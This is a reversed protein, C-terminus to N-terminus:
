SCIASSCAGIRARRQAASGRDAAAQAARGRQRDGPRAEDHHVPLFRRGHHAPRREARRESEVDARAEPPQQAARRGLAHERGDPDPRGARGHRVRLQLDSPITARPEGQADQRRHQAASQDASEDAASRVDREELRHAHRPRSPQVAGHDCAAFRGQQRHERRRLGARRQQGRRRVSVRRAVAPM